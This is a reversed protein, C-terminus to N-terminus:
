LQLFDQNSVQISRHCLLHGEPTLSLKYWPLDRAAPGKTVRGLADFESGHCPCIFGATEVRLVCTQHTCIASVARIQDRSRILIVREIELHTQGEKIATIPGLDLPPLDEPLKEACGFLTSAFGLWGFIKLINRRNPRQCAQEPM